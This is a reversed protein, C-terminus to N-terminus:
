RSKRRVVIMLSALLMILPMVACLVWKLVEAQNVGIRIANDKGHPRPTDIPYEGYSMWKFVQYLFTFNGSAVAYRERMLESNSFCDADGLLLIRQQRGNELERTLVSAVSRSGVKENRDSDM